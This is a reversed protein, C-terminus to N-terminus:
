FYRRVRSSYELYEEGYNEKMFKEEKLIFLHISIFSSLGFAIFFPSLILFANGTFYLLLSLFFPNRSISFVGNTILRGRNNSDMGFRFSDEFHLLTLFIIVLAFLQLFAGVMQMFITDTFSSIFWSPLICFSFQFAPRFIEIIYLAIVLVFILKLILKQSENKKTKSSVKIGRSKFKAIRTIILVLLLVFSIIPVVDLLKM